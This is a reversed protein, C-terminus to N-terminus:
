NPAVLRYYTAGNTPAPLQVGTVPIGNSVNQWPGSSLNTSSQLVYNLAWSPWFVSVQNSVSQSTVPTITLPPSTLLAFLSGLNASGGGFTAGYLVGVGPQSPDFLLSGTPKNGDPGSFAYLQQYGSGDPNIAFLAGQGNGGSPTTGFLLGGPGYVLGAFPETGESPILGTGFSHAVSFSSGNTNMLFITGQNAAGGFETVGVLFAGNQVLTGVVNSGEVPSFDHVVQYGSGDLNLRFVTGCNSGGGNYTTGYLAGDAAQLLGGLSAGALNTLVNYNGGNTDISFAVGGGTFTATTGYLLGNTAQIVSTPNADKNFHDFQHLIQYTGGDGTLKYITGYKNIGGVGGQPTVGYLLHDTGLILRGRDGGILANFAGDVGDNATFLHLPQFGSGDRNIKFVAGFGNSGGGAATGYMAGDAGFVLNACPLDGSTGNLFGHIPVLSVELAHLNLTSLVLASLILPITRSPIRLIKLWGGRFPHTSQM